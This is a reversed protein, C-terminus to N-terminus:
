KSGKGKKPVTIAASPEPPAVGSAARDPMDSPVNTTTPSDEFETEIPVQVPDGAPAATSTSIAPQALPNIQKGGTMFVEDINDLLFTYRVSFSFSYDLSFPKEDSENISFNDFSGIYLTHDYYIYVSGVLSLTPEVANGSDPTPDFWLTGNNKYILYLSMLNRYSESVNRATRTLGPGAGGVADIAYFAAVKGSGEIKDQQAGWHEVIPGHRGHNGDSVIKESTVSFSSPNVILRLPPMKAMEEIKIQTQKIAAAQADMLRALTQARLDISTQATSAITEGAKDASAKGTTAWSETTSSGPPDLPCTTDYPTDKNFRRWSVGKKGKTRKQYDKNSENFACSNPTSSPLGSGNDLKVGHPAMEAAVRALLSKFIGKYKGSDGYYTSVPEEYYNSQALSMMYGMADGQQAAYRTNPNGTVASLYSKAGDVPTAKSQFYRPGSPTQVVYTSGKPPKAYEPIQAETWNGVGGFNNNPINGSTERLCQAVYFQLEQSTPARGYLQQYAAAMVGWLQMVSMKNFTPATKDASIPTNSPEAGASTGSAPTLKYGPVTYYPQDGGKSPGGEVGPSTTAADSVTVSPPAPPVTASRDLLRGTVNATPPLIGVVFMKTNQGSAAAQSIPIFAAAAPDGEIDFHTTDQTLVSYVAPGYYDAAQEIQRYIRQQPTKDDAM